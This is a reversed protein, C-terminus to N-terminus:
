LVRVVHAWLRFRTALESRRHPTVKMLFREFQADSLETMAAVLPDIGSM